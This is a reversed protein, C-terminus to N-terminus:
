SSLSSFKSQVLPAYPIFSESVITNNDVPALSSKLLCPIYSKAPFTISNVSSCALKIERARTSLGQAM